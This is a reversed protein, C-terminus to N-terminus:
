QSLDDSDDSAFPTAEVRHFLGFISWAGLEAEEGVMARMAGMSATLLQSQVTLSRGYDFFWSPQNIFTEMADEMFKGDMFPLREDLWKACVANQDAMHYIYGLAVTCGFGARAGFRAMVMQVFMRIAPCSARVRQTLEESFEEPRDMFDFGEHMFFFETMRDIVDKLSGCEDEM